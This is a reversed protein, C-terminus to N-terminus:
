RHVDSSLTSSPVSQYPARQYAKVHTAIRRRFRNGLTRMSWEAM